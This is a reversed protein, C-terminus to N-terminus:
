IEILDLETQDPDAAHIIRCGLRMLTRVEAPMGGLARGGADSSIRLNPRTLYVLPDALGEVRPMLLALHGTPRDSLPVLLCSADGYLDFGQVGQWVAEPLWNAARLNDRARGLRAAHGRGALGRMTDRLGGGWIRQLARDDCYVPIDAPLRGLNSIRDKELGTVVVANLHVPSLEVTSLLDWPSFLGITKSGRGHRPIMTPGVGSDVLTLGQEPHSLLLFRSRSRLDAGQKPRPGMPLRTSTAAIVRLEAAGVRQGDPIVQHEM